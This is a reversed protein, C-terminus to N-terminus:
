DTRHDYTEDKRWEDVDNLEDFRNDRWGWHRSYYADIVNGNTLRVKVSVYDRGAPIKPTHLRNPTIYKIWPNDSM